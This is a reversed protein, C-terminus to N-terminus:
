NSHAFEDGSGAIAAAFEAFRCVWFQVYRFVYKTGGHTYVALSRGLELRRKKVDIFEDPVSEFFLDTYFPLNSGGSASVKFRSPTLVGVAQTFSQKKLDDIEENSLTAGTLSKGTVPKNIVLFNAISDQNTKGHLLENYNAQLQVASLILIMAVSLGIIALIFRTRGAGTKILKNLLNNLSVM